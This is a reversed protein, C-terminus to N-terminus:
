DPFGFFIPSTGTFIFGVCLPSYASSFVCLGTLCGPAEDRQQKEGRQRRPLFTPPSAGRARPRALAVAVGAGRQPAGRPPWQGSGTSEGWFGQAGAPLLARQLSPRRGAPLVGPSQSDPVTSQPCKWPSTLTLKAVDECCPVAATCSEEAVAPSFLPMRGRSWALSYWWIGTRQEM